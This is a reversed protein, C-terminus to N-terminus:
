VTGHKRQALKLKGSALTTEGLRCEFSTEEGRERFHITFAQEPELPTLFKASVVECVRRDAHRELLCEIVRELM